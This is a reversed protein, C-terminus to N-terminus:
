PTPVLKLCYVGLSLDLEGYAWHLLREMKMGLSLESLAKNSKGFIILPYALADALTEFFLKEPLFSEVIPSALTSSSLPQSGRYDLSLKKEITSSISM